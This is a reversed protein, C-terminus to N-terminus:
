HSLIFTSGTQYIRKAARLQAVRVNILEKRQTKENIFPADETKDEFFLIEDLLHARAEKFQATLKTRHFESILKKLSNLNRKM